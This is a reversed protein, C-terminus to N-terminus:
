QQGAKGFLKAYQALIELDGKDTAPESANPQREAAAAGARAKSDLNFLLSAAKHDGKIAREYLQRILVERRQMKRRKGGEVVKLSGDLFQTAAEATNHAGKPRGKPNGSQGATFRTAKPPKGYGVKYDAEAVEDSAAPPPSPRARTRVTM